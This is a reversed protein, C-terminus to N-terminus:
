GQINKSIRIFYKTVYIERYKSSKNSSNYYPKGQGRMPEAMYVGKDAVNLEPPVAAFGALYDEMVRCEERHQIQKLAANLEDMYDSIDM